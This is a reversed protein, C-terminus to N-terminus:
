TTSLPQPPYVYLQKAKKRTNLPFLLVRKMKRTAKEMFEEMSSAHLNQITQKRQNKSRVITRVSWAIERQTYGWSRLLEERKDRTLALEEISGRRSYERTDEFNELSFIKDDDSSYNWGIGIAPGSTVSPNIELVREYNRVQVECFSVSRKKKNKSLKEDRSSSFTTATTESQIDIVKSTSPSVMPPDTARVVTTFNKNKNSVMMSPTLFDDTKFFEGDTLGSVNSAVSVEFVHGVVHSVASATDESNEQKSLPRRQWDLGTLSPINFVVKSRRRSEPEIGYQQISCIVKQTGIMKSHSSTGIEGSTTALHLQHEKRNEKTVENSLFKSGKTAEDTSSSNIVIGSEEDHISQYSQEQRKRKEQDNKRTNSKIKISSLLL